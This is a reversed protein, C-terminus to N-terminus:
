SGSFAVLLEKLNKLNHHMKKLIDIFDQLFTVIHM